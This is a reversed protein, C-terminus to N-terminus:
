FQTRSICKIGIHPYTPMSETAHHVTLLISYLLAVITFHMSM